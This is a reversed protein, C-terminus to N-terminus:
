GAFKCSKEWVKGSKRLFIVVKAVVFEMGTGYLTHM